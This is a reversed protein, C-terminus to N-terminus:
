SSRRGFMYSALLGATFAIAISQAPKTKIRREFKHLTDAGTDKLDSARELVYDAAMHAKDNSVDRINRALGVVNEKIEKIEPFSRKDSKIHLKAKEAKHEAGKTEDHNAM